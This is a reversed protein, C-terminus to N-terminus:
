MSRFRIYQTSRRSVYGEFRAVPIGGAPQATTLSNTGGAALIYLPVGFAANETGAVYNTTEAVYNPGCLVTVGTSGPVDLRGRGAFVLYGFEGSDALAAEATATDMNVWEGELPINADNPDFDIANKAENASLITASDVKVERLWVLATPTVLHVVETTPTLQQSGYENVDIEGLTMKIAEM